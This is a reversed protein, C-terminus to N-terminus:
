FDVKPPEKADRNQPFVIAVSADKEGRFLSIEANGDFAPWKVTRTKYPGGQKNVKAEEVDSAPPGYKATLAELAKDEFFRDLTIHVLVVKKTKNGLVLSRGM